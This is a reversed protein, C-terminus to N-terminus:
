SARRSTSGDEDQRQIDVPCHETMTTDLLASLPEISRSGKAKCPRDSNQLAGNAVAEKSDSREALLSGGIVAHYVHQPQISVHVNSCVRRDPCVQQSGCDLVAFETSDAQRRQGIEVPIAKWFKCSALLWVWQSANEALTIAACDESEVQVRCGTCIAAVVSVLGRTQHSDSWFVAKRATEGYKRRTNVVVAAPGM